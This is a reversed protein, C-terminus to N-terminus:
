FIWGWNDTNREIRLPAVGEMAFQRGSDDLRWTTEGFHPSVFVGNKQFHRLGMSSPRGNYILHWRFCAVEAHGIEQRKSDVEACAYSTKWKGQILLPDRGPGSRRGHGM